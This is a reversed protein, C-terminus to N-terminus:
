KKLKTKCISSLCSTRFENDFFIKYYNQRFLMKMGKSNILEKYKMYQMQERDRSMVM